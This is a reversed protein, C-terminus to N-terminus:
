CTESNSKGWMPFLNANGVKEFMGAVGNIPVDSGLLIEECKKFFLFQSNDM